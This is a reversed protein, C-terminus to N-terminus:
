RWKRNRVDNGYTETTHKRQVWSISVIRVSAPGFGWLCFGWPMNKTRIRRKVSLQFIFNQFRNTGDSLDLEPRDSYVRNLITALNNRNTAQKAQM